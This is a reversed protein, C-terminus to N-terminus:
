LEVDGGLQQVRDRLTTKGSTTIRYNNTRKDKASKEVYGMEVLEDLNPYLRGHNIQGGYKDYSELERKIALGYLEGMRNLVGLVDAQFATLNEM